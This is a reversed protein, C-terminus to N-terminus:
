VHRMAGKAATTAHRPQKPRAGLLRRLAWQGAERVAHDMGAPEDKSLACNIAIWAAAVVAVSSGLILFLDM